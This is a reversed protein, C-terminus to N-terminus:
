AKVKEVIKPLETIDTLQYDPKTQWGNILEGNQHHIAVSVVAIDAGNQRFKRHANQACLIDTELDGIFFVTGPKNDTLAKISLFLGFPSPKQNAFTVEEYGIISDFFQSMGNEELTEQINKKSNQSFIGQPFGNLSSLTEEVGAYVPCPTTDETQYKTWLRGAQDTQTENLVYENQYMERWNLARFNAQEYNSLSTLAPFSLPDKGTIERIIIKTVVLNKHMTDVLTGDYDWLVATVGNATM